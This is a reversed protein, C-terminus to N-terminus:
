GRKCTSCIVESALKLDEREQHSDHDLEYKLVELLEQGIDKAQKEEGGIAVNLAVFPLLFNAIAIDQGKIIRFCVPFIKQANEGNGSQLLDLVFTRLWIGYSPQSPFIPYRCKPVAFNTGVVYQSTLFPTLSNRVDEPLAIWRRYDANSQSERSRFTVAAKFGCFELLEQMAYALFGQSRPHTASKFAKILVEQLFFVIWNSTEEAREFNDVVLIDRHERVAEVRNPDLCGVIGICQGCLDAVDPRHVALKICCDLLSRILTAVVSDPQESVASLHLFAQNQRLYPLLETLAQAVVSGNEHQCRYSFSQFTQRTDLGAKMAGLREEIPSLLPISSLSPLMSSTEKILESHKTILKTMMAHARTQTKTQFSSWKQVLLSFTIELMSGVDEEELIEMM